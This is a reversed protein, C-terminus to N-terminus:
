EHSEGGSSRVVQKGKTTIAWRNNRKLFGLSILQRVHHVVSSIGEVKIARSIKEYSDDPNTELHELIKLQREHM